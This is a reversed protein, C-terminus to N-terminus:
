IEKIYEDFDDKAQKLVCMSVNELPRQKLTTDINNPNLEYIIRYKTDTVIIWDNLGKIPEVKFRENSKLPVSKSAKSNNTEVKQKKPRVM